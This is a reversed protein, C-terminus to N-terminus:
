IQYIGVSDQRHKNIHCTVTFIQVHLTMYELLIQIADAAIQGM